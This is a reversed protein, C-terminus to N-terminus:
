LKNAMPEKLFNAFLLFNRKELNVLGPSDLGVLKIEDVKEAGLDHLQWQGCTRPFTSNM